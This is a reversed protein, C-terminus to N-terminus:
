LRQQARRSRFNKRERAFDARRGARHRPIEGPRTRGFAPNVYAFETGRGTSNLSEVLIQEADAGGIQRVVDFLGFRLSPPLMASGQANRSGGRGAGGYAVDRNSALFPRIVPLASQGGQALQDLLALVRYQARGQGPGPTVQITALEDLIDQLSRKAPAVQPEESVVPQKAAARTTRAVETEATASQSAPSTKETELDHRGAQRDNMWLLAVGFGLGASVLAVLLSKLKM